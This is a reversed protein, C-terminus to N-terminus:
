EIKDNKSKKELIKKMSATFSKDETKTRVIRNVLFILVDRIAEAYELCDEDDEAHLGESLASHLALLPNVNNPRLNAPLLDKVLEIKKQAVTTKKVEELASKYAEKDKEELLEEISELLSDIIEEVIRRFYAFAGIGYGQSECILGKKYYEAHDGLLNGLESDMEIDWAPFQGVKRITMHYIHERKEEDFVSSELFYVVFERISAHCGECLYQLRYVGDEELYGGVNQYKSHETANYTQISGCKDCHMNISPRSLESPEIRNFHKKPEFRYVRYLPYKEFFEKLIM